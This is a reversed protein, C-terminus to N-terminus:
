KANITKGNLNQSQSLNGKDNANITKEAKLADSYTKIKVEEEQIQNMVNETIKCMENKKMDYICYLGNSLRGTKSGRVILKELTFPFASVYNRTIDIMSNKYYDVKIWGDSYDCIRLVEIADSYNKKSTLSGSMGFLAYLESTNENFVASVNARPFNLDPLATWTLNNLDLMECASNREGGIIVVCDYNEIYEVAHYSHPSITDNIRKLENTKINYLLVINLPNGFSDVGGIIYLNDNVLAHRAGEPFQTYGHTDKNLEVKVRVISNTFEQYVAIESRGIIPKAWEKLKMLREQFQTYIRKNVDFSKRPSSM